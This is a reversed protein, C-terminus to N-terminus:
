TMRLKGANIASLLWKDIATRHFRWHRGIMQGLFIGRRTLHYLMSKSLTLYDVM